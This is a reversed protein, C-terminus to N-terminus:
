AVRKDQNGVRLAYFGELVPADGAKSIGVLRLVAADWPEHSEFDIQEDSREFSVTVVLHFLSRLEYRFEVREINAGHEVMWIMALMAPTCAFALAQFLAKVRYPNTENESLLDAITVDRPAFERPAHRVRARYEAAFAGLRRVLDDPDSFIKDLRMDSVMQMLRDRESAAM